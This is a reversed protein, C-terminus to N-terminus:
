MDSDEFKWCVHGFASTKSLQQGSIKSNESDRGAHENSVYEILQLQLYRSSMDNIM